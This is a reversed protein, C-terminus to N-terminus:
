RLVACESSTQTFRQMAFIFGPFDRAPGSEITKELPKTLERTVYPNHDFFWPKSVDYLKKGTAIFYNEPVSSFQIGDGIGIKPNVSIGIM